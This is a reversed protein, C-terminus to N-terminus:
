KNRKRLHEVFGYLIKKDNEKIWTINDLISIGEDYLNDMKGYAYDYAGSDKFIKKIYEVDDKTIDDKGYYKLLKDKYISNATYLYMLTQKFEKIDSGVVKGIDDGYIGLIDDQIQFAIGIKESFNTIDELKDKSASSLIMGLCLPGTITYYATKLKYVLLISEELNDKILNNKSEFSLATDILEGKITKLVIDDFYGLINGLNKDNRYNEIIMKNALYLGYDGICIAVSNSLHNIDSNSDISSYYKFNAYHITEKGRRLNDRDIIDDHVLIATQFIEYALSLNISYDINSDCILKYGLNVLFGRILKGGSNLNAFLELNRKLIENDDSVLNSNYKDLENNIKEYIDKYYGNFIEINSNM